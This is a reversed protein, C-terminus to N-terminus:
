RGSDRQELRRRAQRYEDDAAFEHDPAAVQWWPDLVYDGGDGGDGGAEQSAASRRPSPAWQLWWGYVAGERTLVYGSLAELGGPLMKGEAQVFFPWWQGSALGKEALLRELVPAAPGHFPQWREQVLQAEVSTRQEQPAGRPEDPGAVSM